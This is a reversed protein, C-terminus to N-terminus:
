ARTSRIGAVTGKSRMTSYRTRRIRSKAHMILRVMKRQIRSSPITANLWALKM